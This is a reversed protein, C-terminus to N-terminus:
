LKTLAIHFSIATIATIVIIAQDKLEQKKTNLEVLDIALFKPKSDFPSKAKVNPKGKEFRPFESARTARNTSRMMLSSLSLCDNQSYDQQTTLLTAEKNTQKNTQSRTKM